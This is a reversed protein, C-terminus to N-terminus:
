RRARAERRRNTLVVAGGGVIILAGAGAAGVTAARPVGAPGRDPVAAAVPAEHINEHARGAPEIYPAGTEHALPATAATVREAAAPAAAAGFVVDSCSYFAEPSDSRQYIVYVLHRGTKGQPMRGNMVFSGNDLPPDTQTLFPTAELDSWRLPVTPDYGDRTVFFQFTGRHPSTARFLFNFTSGPSVATAPWDARAQDFGKYKDRGASCLKGDPILQHHRGAVDALNVENWDYVPQTGGIAVAAKCAASTPNEPNEARCTGTRSLPNSLTGHAQATGTALAAITLPALCCAAAFAAVRRPSKM